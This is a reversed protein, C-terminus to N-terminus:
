RTPFNDPTVQGLLAAPTEYEILPLVAFGLEEFLAKWDLDRGSTFLHFYNVMVGAARSTGIHAGLGLHESQAVSSGPLYGVIYYTKPLEQVAGLGFALVSFGPAGGGSAQGLMEMINPLPEVGLWSIVRSTEYSLIFPKRIKEPTLSQPDPTLVLVRDKTDKEM